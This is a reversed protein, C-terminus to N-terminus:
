KDGRKGNASKSRAPEPANEARRTELGQDERSTLDVLVRIYKNGTSIVQGINLQIV